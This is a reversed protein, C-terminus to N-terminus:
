GTNRLGSAIGNITLLIAYLLQDQTERARAGKKRYRALLEVQLYSMPDVYPNRLEISRKLVPTKELLTRQGTVQLVRRSTRHYEEELREFLKRGKGGPLREAYQRAIQFDAKALAMEINSLTSRFYPWHRFMERLIRLEKSSKRSVFAELASGVGLWGPLLHRSQTWGFVWPIARLDELGKSRTKRRAPRSGIHLHQLEEVPTADLFYETFGARRVTDRYADFALASLREMVERWRSLRAENPEGPLSAEIVASTQLELSRLAIEPLGYKTSVVEGQETIKIRGDVSGKPQALIAQHSPGGGRGVSGGRGHFLRLDIEHGRAVESLAEQAKFLEWSSTLIGGDKSSDSYGLMVEQLGGQAVLVPRYVPNEFLHAMVDPARRLDDITEFLPAVRLRAVIDGSGVPPRYLGAEKALALVALVDSVDKAMSIVYTGISEEGLEDLARRAVRFVELTEATSESTRADIGLLPRPTLLEETLFRVRDAESRKGYTPIIGVADTLETLADAHRESSQRLDLSALHFGFTGVQLMLRRVRAASGTENSRLSEEITALDDVLENPSLYAGEERSGTRTRELRERIFGLKQRYPEEPNRAEAERAREPFRSRDRGLSEVLGDLPPCFRESESMRSGLEDVARLYKSLVLERQRLLTEWTVSPTVFRNGDRDGGVWSGFRLPTVNESIELGPLRSAARHLEELFDPVAEFLVVDFYYLANTVEDLVSPQFRRLEDTLWIAEVERELDERLGDRLLSPLDKRDLEGLLDAIRRHKELLSRRVAETPHATIVPQIALKGIVRGVGVPDVRSKSLREFLDALSGPQPTEPTELAYFRRRRIRHHQEAINTLQFYAAFARIVGVSTELDLARLLDLLEKERRRDARNRLSKSLERIREEIEFLEKGGHRKMTSGLIEGLLRVDARLPRNKDTKM